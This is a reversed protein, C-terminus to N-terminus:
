EEEQSTSSPPSYSFIVHGDEKSDKYCYMKIGSNNELSDINLGIKVSKVPSMEETAGSEFTIYDDNAIIELEDFYDSTEARLIEKNNKDKFIIKAFLNSLYQIVNGEM